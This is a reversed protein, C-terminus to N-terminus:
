HTKATRWLIDICRHKNLKIVAVDTKINLCQPPQIGYNSTKRFFYKWSFPVNSLM